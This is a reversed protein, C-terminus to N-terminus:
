KLRNYKKVEEATKKFSQHYELSDNSNEVKEIAENAERYIDEAAPNYDSAGMGHEAPDLIRVNAENPKDTLLKITWGTGFIALFIVIAKLTQNKM